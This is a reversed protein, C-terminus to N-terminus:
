DLSKTDLLTKTAADVAKSNSVTDQLWKIAATRDWGDQPVNNLRFVAFPPDPDHNDILFAAYRKGLAMNEISVNRFLSCNNLVSLWKPTVLVEIGNYLFRGRKIFVSSPPSFTIDYLIDRSAERIVLRTGVLEIDWLHVNLVLENEAIQLVLKGHSDYINTNLLYHGDELKVTLLSQGDIRIVEATVGFRSDSHKVTCTGINILFTNGSYYLNYPHTVHAQLNLPRKNAAIVRENPLFGATKARHHNDCLLTIEAAVHRRVNAWGLIHDYEYVPFGCIVCGFGCRQRVERKLAPSLDPRNQPM